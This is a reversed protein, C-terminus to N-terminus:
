DAGSAEDPTDAYQQMLDELAAAGLLMAFAAVLFLVLMISLGWLVGVPVFVPLAIVVGVVALQVFVLASYGINGLVLLASRRTARLVGIDERVIFAPCYIQMLVWYLMAYSFLTLVAFSGLQSIRQGGPGSSSWFFLNAAWITTVAM